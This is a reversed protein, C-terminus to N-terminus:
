LQKDAAELAKTRPMRWVPKLAGFHGQYTPFTEVKKEILHLKYGQRPYQQSRLGGGYRPVRVRLPLLLVALWVLELALEERGQHTAKPM